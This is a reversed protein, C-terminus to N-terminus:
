GGVIHGLRLALARFPQHNVVVSVRLAAVVEIAAALLNAARPEPVKHARGAGDRGPQKAAQKGARM